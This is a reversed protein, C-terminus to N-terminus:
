GDTRERGTTATGAASDVGQRHMELVQRAPPGTPPPGAAADGRAEGRSSRVALPGVPGATPRYDTARFRRAVRVVRRRERLAGDLADRPAALGDAARRSSGPRTRPRQAPGAPRRTTRTSARDASAVPSGWRPQPVGTDSAPKPPGVGSMRIPGTDMGGFPRQRKQRM